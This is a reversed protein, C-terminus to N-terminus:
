YERTQIQTVPGERVTISTVPGASAGIGTVLGASAIIQAIHPPTPAEAGAVGGLLSGFVDWTDRLTRWVIIM